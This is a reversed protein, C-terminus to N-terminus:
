AVRPLFSNEKFIAKLGFGVEQLSSLIFCVLFDPPLTLMIDKLGNTINLVSFVSVSSGNLELTTKAYRKEFHSGLYIVPSNLEALSVFFSRSVSIFSLIATHPRYGVSVSLRLYGISLLCCRASYVCFGYCLCTVFVSPFDSGFLQLACM